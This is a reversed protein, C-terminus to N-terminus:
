KCLVNVYVSQRARGLKNSAECIYHGSQRRDISTNSLDLTSVSVGIPGGVQESSAGTLEVLRSGDAEFSLPPSDTIVDNALAAPSSAGSKPTTEGIQESTLQHIADPQQQRPGGQITTVGSPLNFHRLRAAVLDSSTM